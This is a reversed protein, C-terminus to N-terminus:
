GSLRSMTIKVEIIGPSEGDKMFIMGNYSRESVQFQPSCLMFQDVPYENEGIIIKYTILNSQVTCIYKRTPWAPTLIHM